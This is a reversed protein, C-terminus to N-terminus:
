SPCCDVPACPNTRRLSADPIPGCSRLRNRVAHTLYRRTRHDCEGVSQCGGHGSGRVIGCAAGQEQGGGGSEGDGDGAHVAGGRAGGRRGGGHRRGGALGAVEIEEGAFPLDAVAPQLRRAAVVPVDELAFRGAPGKEAADAADFLQADRCPIEAAHAQAQQIDLFAHPRIEPHVRLGADEGRRAHGPM